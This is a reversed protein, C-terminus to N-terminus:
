SRKQFSSSKNIILLRPSKPKNLQTHYCIEYQNPPLSKAFEVVAIEEDYGESHGPYCMISVMGGEILLALAKKISEITSSHLTKIKKDSGPLYGLNYIILKIPVQYSEEPFNEHSMQFYSVKSAIEKSFHEDLRKKTAEIAQSQIDLALIKKLGLSLLFYTDFGNGCTADIACDEPGLLQKWYSHALEIFM